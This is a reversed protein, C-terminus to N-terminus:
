FSKMGVVQAGHDSMIEYARGLQLRALPGIVELGVIGPHDLLKQIDGRRTSYKRCRKALRAPFLILLILL